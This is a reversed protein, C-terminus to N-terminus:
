AALPQYRQPDHADILFPRENATRVTWKSLEQMPPLDREAYQLAQARLVIEAATDIPNEDREWRGVAQADRGVTAALEAQTMGMQTRLFRIEKPQLGGEKSAVATLLVRHLLGVNPITIVAEGDDDQLVPLGKLIVNDLGCEDYRYDIITM